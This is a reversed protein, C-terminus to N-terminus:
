LQDTKHKQSRRKKHLERLNTDDKNSKGINCIHCLTQYNQLEDKGGKSRPIIHDVHLIVDHAANRGCSVCKWNDRQFVQWRIAPMVRIKQEAYEKIKDIDDSYLSISESPNDEEGELQEELEDTKFWWRNLREVLLDLRPEEGKSIQVYSDYIPYFFAYDTILNWLSYPETDETVPYPYVISSFFQTKFMQNDIIYKYITENTSVPPCDEDYCYFPTMDSLDALRSIIRDNDINFQFYKTFSEDTLGGATWNELIIYLGQENLRLCYRPPIYRPPKGDKRELGPWKIDRTKKGHLAVSADEYLLELEKKRKNRFHPFYSRTNNEYVDVEYIEYILRVAEEFVIHLRPLISFKIADARLRADDIQFLNKDDEDFAIDEFPTSPKKM